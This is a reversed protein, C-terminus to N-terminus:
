TEDKSPEIVRIAKLYAEPTAADPLNIVINPRTEPALGEVWGLRAKTLYIAAVINGRRAARLLLHSLEDALLAKGLNMAEEAQEDRKILAQLTSRNMGLAAAISYQDQGEAAMAALARLGEPTLTARPMPGGSEERTVLETGSAILSALASQAPTPAEPEQKATKTREIKPPRGKSFRYGPRM